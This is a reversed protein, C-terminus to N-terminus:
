ALREVFSTDIGNRKLAALFGPRDTSRRYAERADVVGNQVLSVLADNIPMMGYRRGGEIAMSLQSTKGEAILGAVAPTNLLVERAPVRGGAQKHLLVQVIIGRLCDALALQVQARYEPAYLDIIRDVAGATTHASFGGVVLRGAAAAELAVNMLSGTRLDEIVLVDPDERLAARAATLMAEDNGRVERQSIFSSGADHVISIEREITIVHDRRTKNIQDVFASLLTRKGSSRPGAVLVLGEPEITLAQVSRPLGLQDVSVSRTPMLRFVGGPGRHDRFSLCRVRGVTEIDCIWETAAGTRLAEHSREPMLTLLLSEVDRASLVPEGDITQLEGDVRVSPQADTSLYLTSAGRAASVRLLRDLGSMTPDAVPPMEAETSRVPNRSIPLVIAAPPVAVPRAPRPPEPEAIAAEPQEVVYPPPMADVPPPVEAVLWPVEVVPTPPPAAVLHPMDAVPEPADVATHPLQALVLPIEALPQPREKVSVPLPAFALPLMEEFPEPVEGVLELEKAIVREPAQAVPQPLQVVTPPPLEELPEPVEAVPEPEEEIPLPVETVWLPIGAVPSPPAAAIPEPMEVVPPPQVEAVPEPVEVVEPQPMEAVPEPVEAVLEPEEVISPVPVEAVPQPMEVVPPPQVEAVPEPVEAVLEPEEEISPVPVEAVPQPVEVVEPQPMEAMPEPVEAVLEPEEEISPMPVEAVSQPVEVVEPQPMEAVPEPVEAVLEPEEEISPVAVEAVSSPVEEIPPTTVEAVPQTAEVVLTAAAEAVPQPTEVVAASPPVVDVAGERVPEQAEVPLPPLEAVPQPMEVIPPTTAAAVVPPAEVIPHEPAAVYTPPIAVSPAAEPASPEHTDLDIEFEDGEEVEEESFAERRRGFLEDADPLTLDDSVGYSTRASQIAADARASELRTTAEEHAVTAEYLDTKQYSVTEQYAVAEERVVPEERAVAMPPAAHVVQPPPPPPAESPVPPPAQSVVAVPVQPAVAPAVARPPFFEEPIHDEDPVRRRRIETWLDDGGRAAVVTFHERPFEPAAPLEYQVAGFEDLARQLEPPLLQGVIGDMAELTLGRSALEIQGSPAVVYPKEGAHMVLAEGDVKLIAQLLSPVLSM